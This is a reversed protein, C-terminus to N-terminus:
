QFNKIMLCSISEFGFIENQTLIGPLRVMDKSTYIVLDGLALKSYSVVVFLEQGTVPQCFLPGRFSRFSKWVSQFSDLHNRQDDLILKIGNLVGIRCVLSKKQQTKCCVPELLQSFSNIAFIAFFLAIEKFGM